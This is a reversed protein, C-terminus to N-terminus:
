DLLEFGYLCLMIKPVVARRSPIYLKNVLLDFSGMGRVAGRRNGAGDNTEQTM